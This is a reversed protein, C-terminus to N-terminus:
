QRGQTAQEAEKLAAAPTRQGLVVQQTALNFDALTRAWNCKGPMFQGAKAFQESVQRLHANKPDQMEPRKALSRLMPVQAGPVNWLSMAEPGAMHDIFKTAAELRPSKRWAVAFWGTVLAPGPKDKSAGPIPAVALDDKKWGSATRQMQEYRSNAIVQMGYRGASMQDIADDSTMSLAERPTVKDKLIWDAQMQIAREAAPTAIRATCEDGKFLGGQEGITALVSPTASFRESALGLGIGWVDPQGDGNTDKTIKKAAETVGQWTAIDEATLGAQQLLDRRYMLVWTISMLPMALLKNDVTVSTLAGPTTLDAKREASWKAVVPQLDAAADTNLILGLNESNIWSVDPANGANHGLVFKEGLTTWVQPEVKVKTGPNAKEFSEIMAKLAQERGGPKNPDLFTWMTLTTQASALSTAAFLAATAALLPTSLRRATM